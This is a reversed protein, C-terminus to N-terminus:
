PVTSGKPLQLASVTAQLADARNTAGTVPVYSNTVMESSPMLSKMSLVSTILLSSTCGGLRSAPVTFRLLPCVYVSTLRKKSRCPWMAHFTYQLGGPATLCVSKWAFAAREGEGGGGGGGMGGGGGDGVGMEGGLEGGDGGSAATEGLAMKAV